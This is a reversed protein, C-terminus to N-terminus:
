GCFARRLAHAVHVMVATKHLSEEYEKAPVSEAVIGCGASYRLTGGAAGPADRHMCITRIGVNLALMSRSLAGIGGCYPGRAVPELADIAQLARVKPAGTVSGPPWMARLVDPLATGPRLTATVDAVAHLVTAHPEVRRADAVRVSGARALRGLDNRMLDVIMHLEAADKASAMLAEPPEHAARTGKIPRTIAAGSATAHLFLEPSMSALAHTGTELYAGYRPAGARFAASAVARPTGTWRASFRQAINAQYMDGAHILEVATAVAREFDGRPHDGELGSIVAGAGSAPTKDAGSVPAGRAGPLPGGRAGHIADVAVVARQEALARGLALAAPQAHWRRDRHAYVLPAPCWALVALPWGDPPPRHRPMATPEVLAGWEYALALMWLGESALTEPADAQAEDGARVDGNDPAGAGAGCQADVEDRVEFWAHRRLTAELEAFARAADEPAHGCWPITHVEAPEALISLRGWREHPTGTLLAALPREVPWREFMQGPTLTWTAPSANPAVHLAISHGEDRADACTLARGRM